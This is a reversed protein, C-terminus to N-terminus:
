SAAYYPVVFTDSGITIPIYGTPTTPLATASGANGVTTQTTADSKIAVNADLDVAESVDGAVFRNNGASWILIQNQTPATTLDVNSLEDIGFRGYNENITNLATKINTFNDRFGQTDNDQGAVPFSGDINNVNINQIAM